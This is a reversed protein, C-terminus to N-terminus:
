KAADRLDFANCSAANDFAAFAAVDFYVGDVLLRGDKYFHVGQTANGAFKMHIQNSSAADAPIDKAIIVVEEWEDNGKTQINAEGIAIGSSAAGNKDKLGYINVFPMRESNCRMLLKYYVVGGELSYKGTMCDFMV